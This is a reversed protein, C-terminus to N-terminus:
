INIKPTYLLVQEVDENRVSQGWSEGERLWVTVAVNHADFRHDHGPVVRTAAPQGLVTSAEATHAHALHQRGLQQASAAEEDM